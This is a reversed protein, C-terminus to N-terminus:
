ERQVIYVLSKGHANFQQIAGTTLDGDDMLQDLPLYYQEDFRMRVSVSFAQGSITSQAPVYHTYDWPGGLPTDTYGKLPFYDYLAAPIQRYGVHAPYDGHDVRYRELATAFNRVDTATATLKSKTRAQTITPLVLAALIGLILVVIMIEMLTMGRPRPRHKQTTAM